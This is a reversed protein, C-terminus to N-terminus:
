PRPSLASADQAALGLLWKELAPTDGLDGDYRHRPLYPVNHGRPRNRYVKIPVGLKAAGSPLEAARVEMYLSDATTPLGVHTIGPMALASDMFDLCASACRGDTLVFVQGHVPSRPVSAAAQVVKPGEDPLHYLADGKKLAGRLGVGMRRLYDVVPAQEGQERSVVDVLFDMYAANDRSVRWDVYQAGAEPTEEVKARFLAEGYLGKLVNDGWTSSGGTNGRVDLVLVRAERWRPAEEVLKRLSALTQESEPAYFSPLSVWLGGEGFAHVGFEPRPGFAAAKTREQLKEPSTDRYRLPLTRPQGDVRVECAKPLAVEPDGEDQLLRPVSAVRKGEVDPGTVTPWVTREFLQAAPVGDCSLLEAGVPPLGAAGQEVSAVVYRGQKLAVVFGPWRAQAPVVTPVLQLHGDRFGAAYRRLTAVYAGHSRARRARALAERYGGELWKSFGPNERDVPGPHSELIIRHMARVDQEALQAWPSSDAPAPSAALVLGAAAAVFTM